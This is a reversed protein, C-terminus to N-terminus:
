KSEPRSLEDRKFSSLDRTGFERVMHARVRIVNRLKTSGKWKRSYFSFYPGEVFPGFLTVNSTERSAKILEALKERAESKTMESVLGLIKSTRKGNVYWAGIWKGRQKRVYGTSYRM